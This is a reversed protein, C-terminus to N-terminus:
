QERAPSPLYLNVSFYYLTNRDLRTYFHLMLIDLRHQTNEGGTTQQWAGSCEPCLLGPMHVPFLVPLASHHNLSIKFLRDETARVFTHPHFSSYSVIHYIDWYVSYIPLFPRVVHLNALTCHLQGVSGCHVLVASTVM